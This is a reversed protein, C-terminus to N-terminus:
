YELYLNDTEDHNEFKLSHRRGKRRSRGRGEKEYNIEAHLNKLERYKKGERNRDSLGNSKRPSWRRRREIEWFFDEVRDEIGSFACGLRRKVEAVKKLVWKLRLYTPPLMLLPKVESIYEM